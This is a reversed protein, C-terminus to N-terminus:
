LAFSLNARQNGGLRLLATKNGVLLANFIRGAASVRSVAPEKHPRKPPTMSSQRKAEYHDAVVAQYVRYGAIDGAASPWPRRTRAWSHRRRARLHHRNRGCITPRYGGCCVPAKLAKVAAERNSIVSGGPRLGRELV